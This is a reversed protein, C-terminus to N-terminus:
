CLVTKRSYREQSSLYMNTTLTPPSSGGASTKIHHRKDNDNNNNKNFISCQLCLVIHMHFEKKAQLCVMSKWDKIYLEKQVVGM